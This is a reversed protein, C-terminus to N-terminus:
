AVARTIEIAGDIGANYLGQWTINLMVDDDNNPSFHDADQIKVTPINITYKEGTVSGLTINFAGGTGALFLDMMAKNQFYFSATGNVNCRGASVRLLDVLGAVPKGVLNNNVNIVMSMLKPLPSVFATNLTFANSADLVENDNAAVVSGTLSNGITGNKGVMTFSVTTKQKANINIAMTDVVMGTYLEYTATDGNGQQLKQVHFSKQTTGNVIVDTSFSSHLASEILNDFTAYTLEADFGGSAMGGVQILDAINRDSRIEDSVVNEREIKFSEGTFRMESFAAPSPLVGWSSEELISLQTESTQM